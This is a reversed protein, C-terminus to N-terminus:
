EQICRSLREVVTGVVVDGDTVKGLHRSAVRRHNVVIKPPFIPQKEGNDVTHEIVDHV